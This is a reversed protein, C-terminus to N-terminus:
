RCVCLSGSGRDRGIGRPELRAGLEFSRKVLELMGLRHEVEQLGLREGGQVLENLVPRSGHSQTFLGVERKRVNAVALEGGDFRGM